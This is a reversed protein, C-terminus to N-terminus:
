LSNNSNIIFAILFQKFQYHISFIRKIFRPLDPYENRWKLLMLEGDLDVYSLM